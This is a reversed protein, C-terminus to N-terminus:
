EYWTPVIKKVEPLVAIRCLKEWASEVLAGHRAVCETNGTPFFYLTEAPVSCGARGRSSGAHITPAIQGLAGSHVRMEDARQGLSGIRVWKATSV